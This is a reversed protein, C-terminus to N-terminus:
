RREYSVFRAKVAKGIRKFFVENMTGYDGIEVGATISSSTASVNRSKVVISAEFSSKDRSPILILRNSNKERCYYIYVGWSSLCNM